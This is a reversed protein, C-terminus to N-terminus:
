PHEHPYWEHWEINSSTLPNSAAPTERQRRFLIDFIKKLRTLLHKM